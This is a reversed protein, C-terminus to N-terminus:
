KGTNYYQICDGQNNFHRPVDFRAWGGNKCQDKVTPPGTASDCADGIGDLDFDEQGPNPTFDCNDATDPVGDNDDDADCADGQGDGDNNAQDANATFPCNDTTDPVGDNDDDADCADGQGDGDNNAQDANATFPCNDATDPVGDNDDDADCADGEADGDNNAQDANPATPCNDYADPVGDGDGDAECDYVKVNDLYWGFTTGGCGDTSMDWRLQIINGPAVLSTLNVISKGWTGDVSGGDTGSWARQGARPNTNGPAAAFTSNYGNYIFNAQPVLTFPGGNVSIMLQGGDFTAETAIWHEFTLTPSSMGAPLSIFPSTLHRVGSENDTATCSGINPDEAFFGKGLRGDPLTSSVTWDPENYGVGAIDSTITWSATSGEFDDAFLTHSATGTGCAPDAPPNQGLLPQFNCQTPPNRMEVALMAKHVELVDAPTIVQGSPLGTNLDALNVGILDTASQELADAHDAFDSSPHQYVSMARFYIHAAKTLGLGTVTQGNYTSGDVIIAYAHNPVGSNDHVGGGDATSCGYDADSVKGPNGQCTPRWMDRLAGTLGTATDDEGMLWRYSNDYPGAPANLRLSGNVTVSAALQNKIANGTNLTVNVSHITIPTVVLPDDAMNVLTNPNVTSAINAIIAGIAGADQANKVKLKFGCTGRDILAVKGAVAAANTFATCGDTTSPGTANAADIARVIDGTTGTNTLPPGFLARGVGYVGAIAAPSNIKLSPPFPTFESCNAGSAARNGGPSDTGRGNILDITEGYIDSYSENLAGPQWAYILNHTYQTYAHTWEHGTVDDSTMGPCFSIFTGNWSANPCSYGRNFIADMIAGSGNFSDRGFANFYLDYTEKSSIIMNNAEAIATPFPQGEVWFPAAPYSPPVTPLNLGNYARRFMGDIIGPLQDVFKGTHADIYVMERVDAGNGVEVEWVLYNEGDVGQALGTRYIYLNTSRASLSSDEELDETVKALAVAAAESGTKSPNPDVTIEPVITGNVAALNGESDVHTKLLGAFVPVGNYVQEFTLHKGGNSDEKQHKLKLEHDANKLGFIGAYSNIFDSSKESASAASSSRMLDGKVGAGFSVFRAAGTADSVSVKANHGSNDKLRQIGDPDLTKHKRAAREVISSHKTTDGDKNKSQASTNFAPPNFQLALFILGLACGTVLFFLRRM